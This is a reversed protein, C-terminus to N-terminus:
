SMQQTNGELQKSQLAGALKGQQAYSNVAAHRHIASYLSAL